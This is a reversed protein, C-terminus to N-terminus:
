SFDSKVELNGSPADGFYIDVYAFVASENQHNKTSLPSKIPEMDGHTHIRLLVDPARVRRGASGVHGWDCGQNGGDEGKRVPCVMSRKKGIHEEDM